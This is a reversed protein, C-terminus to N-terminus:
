VVNSILCILIIQRVLLVFAMSFIALWAQADRFKTRISNSQMVSLQKGHTSQTDNAITVDFDVNQCYLTMKESVSFNWM